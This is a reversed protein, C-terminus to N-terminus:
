VESYLSQGRPVPSSGGAGIMLRQYVDRMLKDVFM